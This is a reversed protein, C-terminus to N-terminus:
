FVSDGSARSEHYVFQTFRFQSYNQTLRYLDVSVGPANTFTFCRGFEQNYTTMWQQANTCDIRDFVCEEIFESFTAGYDNAAQRSFTVLDRIDTLDRIASVTLWAEYNYRVGPQFTCCNEGELEFKPLV